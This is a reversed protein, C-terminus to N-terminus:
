VWFPLMYDPEMSQLETLKGNLHKELQENLEQQNTYNKETRAKETQFNKDEKGKSKEYELEGHLKTNKLSNTLDTLENKVTVAKSKLNRLQSVVETYGKEGKPENPICETKKKKTDCVENDKGRCCQKISAVKKQLESLDDFFNKHEQLKAETKTTVATMDSVATFLGLDM